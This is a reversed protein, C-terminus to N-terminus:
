ESCALLLTPVSIGITLISLNLNVKLLRNRYSAMSITALEQKALIQSRHFKVEHLISQLQRVYDEFLLELVSHLHRPVAAIRNAKKANGNDDMVRDALVIGGDILVQRETLLMDLLDEENEVLLELTQVMEQLDMEFQSLAEQLPLLKALYHELNGDDNAEELILTKLDQLIKQTMARYFVIRRNWKDSLDNLLYDLILYEFDREIQDVHAISGNGNRDDLASNHSNRLMVREGVAKVIEGPLDKVVETDSEFLILEDRWLLGRINGIAVVICNGVTRIQTPVKRDFQSVRVQTRM